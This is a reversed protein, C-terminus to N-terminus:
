CSTDQFSAKEVRTEFERGFGLELVEEPESPLGLRVVVRGGKLDMVINFLTQSEATRCIAGPANERDEFLSSFGEWTLGEEVADSLERMREVRFPSDKLWITDVVGPHALLLHNTHIVRGHNDAHMVATTTATFECGLAQESDAILIHASSAIGWQQLSELAENASIAELAMRLGLHVPLQTQDVGKVRIANLCVGVGASNFGIKGIIGAETVMRITPKPPHQIELIVLNEKQAPQWDWNQALFSYDKTHWALSTCGDSFCGFAIETRVNLAIIDITSRGAGHAIGEMEAYYAPWTSKIKVAFSEALSRVGEWDLACKEQFMGAYFEICRDIQTKAASGHKTGIEHPTGSCKIHLM